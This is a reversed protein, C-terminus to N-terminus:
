SGKRPWRLPQPAMAFSSGNTSENRREVLSFGRNKVTNFLSETACKISVFYRFGINIDIAIFEELQAPM